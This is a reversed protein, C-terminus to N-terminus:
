PCWRFPAARRTGARAGLACAGRHRRQRADRHRPRESAGRRRARLRGGGPGPAHRPGRRRGDPRACDHPLRRGHLRLGDGRRPGARRAGRCAGAVGAGGRRRRRRGRVRQPARRVAAVGAPPRRGQFARGPQRVRCPLHALRERRLRRGPGRRHLRSPHGARGLRHLAGRHRLGYRREPVRGSARLPYVPQGGRHQRDHHPHFLPNVRKPGKEALTSFGSQLEDIGGIGTGFVCAVRTADEADMDLGAQAMAEDSAVIAYQVFREFRRAEKKTLGHECADFGDIEGAVHVEYDSTDFRTVPGICCRRGM